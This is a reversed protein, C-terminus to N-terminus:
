GPVAASPLVSANLVWHAPLLSKQNSYTIGKTERPKFVNDSLAREFARELNMEDAARPGSM